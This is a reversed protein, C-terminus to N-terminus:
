EWTIFYKQILPEFLPLPNDEYAELFPLSTNHFEDEKQKAKLLTKDIL